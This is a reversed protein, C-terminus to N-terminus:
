EIWIDEYKIINLPHVKLGKINNQHAYSTCITSLFVWPAENVIISEVENMIEHYKYPNKTKRAEELMEVIEGNHYKSYNMSSNKDILPQIYNDATGSDGVWGYLFIDCSKNSASGEFYNGKVECVKVKIGIERLSDNLIESIRQQVKNKPSVSMTLTGSGIGSIKMLEKAKRLDRGYARSRYNTLSNPFAGRSIVDMDGFVERSIKEKDICYNIAQRVDKNHVISNSSNFNFALFRCGVCEIKETKYGKSKLKEMSNKSVNIYDFEGDIFKDSIEQVNFYIEIKNILAQGLSYDKFKELIMGNDDMSIFKFTGAGVPKSNICNVEEKPLISCSCHALNNIFMNYAYKLKIKINYKSEVTIGLVSSVKGQFYEEAGEIMELFWRNPSNQKKSLLREFSFKVDDATINRGNHFKMDRRLNFNWTLNDEEVHWTRAVAGIVETGIGFQTLGLHIASNIKMSDIDTVMAPDLTKPKSSSMRLKSMENLTDDINENTMENLNNIASELINLVSKQKDANISINENFTKVKDSVNVMDEIVSMMYENKDAQENMVQNIQNSIDKAKEISTMIDGFAIGSKKVAEASEEVTKVGDEVINLTEKTVETMEEIISNINDASESSNNALKKVEQAVISFGKGAEGARAAEINANLSLLHTTKSIQKIIDVISKIENSKESLKNMASSMNEVTNKINLFSERIAGLSKKGEEARNLSEHVVEMSEEVSASVEQSFAQVESSVNITQNIHDSHKDMQINIEEVSKLLIETSIIADEAEKLIRESMISQCKQKNILEKLRNNQNVFDKVNSKESVIENEDIKKRKFNILAM